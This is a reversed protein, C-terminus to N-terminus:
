SDFRAERERLSRRAEMRKRAEAERQERARKAAALLPKKPPPPQPPNFLDDEGLSKEDEDVLTKPQNLHKLHRYKAEKIAEKYRQLLKKFIKERRELMERVGANASDVQCVSSLVKVERESMEEKIKAGKGFYEMVYESGQRTVLNSITKYLMSQHLQRVVKVELNKNKTGSLGLESRVVRDYYKNDLMDEMKRQLESRLKEKKLELVEREVEFRLRKESGKRKVDELQKRTKLIKERRRDTWPLEFIRFFSIKWIVLANGM